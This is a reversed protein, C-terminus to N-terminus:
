LLPMYDVRPADDDDLANAGEAAFQCWQVVVPDPDLTRPGNAQVPSYGAIALLSAAAPLQIPKRSVISEDFLMPRLRNSIQHHVTRPMGPDVRALKDM